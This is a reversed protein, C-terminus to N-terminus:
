ENNDESSRLNSSMDWFFGKKTNPTTTLMMNNNPIALRDIISDLAKLIIPDTIDFDFDDSQFPHPYAYNYGRIKDDKM